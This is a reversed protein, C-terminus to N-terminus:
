RRTDLSGILHSTDKIDLTVAQGKYKNLNVFTETRAVGPINSIVDQLFDAFEKSSKAVIIAMLDYRGTVKALYCVKSYSSIQTAVGQLDPLHVQLGVIAVFDYGIADLNPIAVINIIGSDRLRKVRRRITIESVNLLRALDVFSQRGNEQLELILEKDLKDLM